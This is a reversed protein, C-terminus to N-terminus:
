QIPESLMTTIQRSNQFLAPRLFPHAPATHSGTEIYFGHHTQGRRGIKMGIYITIGTTDEEISHTLVWRSLYRRYARNPKDSPEKIMDIRRRADDEVFKGVMPANKRLSKSVMEQVAEPDWKEWILGSAGTFSKTM